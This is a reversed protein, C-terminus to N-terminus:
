NRDTDDIESRALCGLLSETETYVHLRRNTQKLSYVAIADIRGLKVTQRRQRDGFTIHCHAENILLQLQQQKQM